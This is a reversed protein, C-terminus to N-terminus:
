ISSVIAICKAFNYKINKLKRIINKTKVQNINSDVYLIPVIPGSIKRLYRIM